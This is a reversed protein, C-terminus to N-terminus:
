ICGPFNGFSHGAIPLQADHHRLCCVQSGAINGAKINQCTVTASSVLRILCFHAVLLVFRGPIGFKAQNPQKFSVNVHSSQM